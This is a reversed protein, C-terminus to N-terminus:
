GRKVTRFGEDIAAANEPLMEKLEIEVARKISRLSIKSFVKCLAGLMATNPYAAKLHTLAIDTAPLYYSKVRKKISQPLKETRNFIAITTDKVGALASGALTNDLILVYDPQPADRSTIADKSVKVYAATPQTRWELPHLTFDQVYLGSLFSARGLVRRAADIGQGGRGHLRFVHM